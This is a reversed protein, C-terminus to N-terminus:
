TKKKKVTIEFDFVEKLTVELAKSLQYLMCSTVNNEGREIRGIQKGSNGIMFGLDEQTLNKRMRLYKVRNGLAKLFEIDTVNQV